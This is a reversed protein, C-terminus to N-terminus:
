AGRCITFRGVILAHVKESRLLLEREDDQAVLRQPETVWEFRSEADVKKEDIDDLVICRM